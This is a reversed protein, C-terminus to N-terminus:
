YKRLYNIFERENFGFTEQQPLHICEVSEGGKLFISGPGLRETVNRLMNSKTDPFLCALQLVMVQLSNAVTYELYEDM